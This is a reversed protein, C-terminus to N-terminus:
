FSVKLALQILRPNGVVSSIVGFAPGASHDSVPLGFSPTNTFNFFETRFQVKAREGFNFNRTVGLDLNHQAPGSVIGVGCNGFGTGDGIVPPATFAAPNFFGQLRNQVSGSSAPNAGTCEARNTFVLNGYVSGASSDSVTIPLGSQEVLVGSFQWDSLATRFAAIQWHPRPTQYSFSLVFRNPRDFAAPGYAQHRNTQDGTMFGVDFAPTEQATYDLTRSWTYSGLLSLGNGLRKTVSTQLSNYNSNFTTNCIYGAEGIGEFPLRQSINEVTTTTQGNVPNQPTAILAQNFQTCGTLHATASGVYGTEWLLTPSIEYQVGMSYVQAAPSRLSRGVAAITIASSPTRPIFIPFASDPPLAPVFPQQFTAAANQSAQLAQTVAFPPQGVDQEALDGSLRQYYIGYGGRLVLAPKDSIRYAFGIRPGVDKYDAAWYGANGSRLVGAPISAKLNSSVVFGSFSGSAPVQATAISPDFNSLRGDIESPPGFYEYRLGANVTLRSNVHFSDQFFGALDSYRENKPFIGSAGSSQFVNSVASGNQAASEGLLFDPFSQFLLFGVTVYPVDLALQHRKAEFGVSLDHKGRTVSLTDQWVFTNTNQFYIPEGAGGLMFLSSVDIQPMQPLGSPTAIGAQAATIANGSTLFGHFRMYGFRAVNVVRSSFIHTDSMVLMDNRDTESSGWGPVDSAFPTFPQNTEDRSHFYRAALQNAHSIRQDFNTSFQDERFRAPISYTSEGIGSPLITQPSPIAFTGNPLKFNLITFAVPNINSGDSAVAAGGFEGAQGGFLAGLAARSRDNTLAPLFATALSGTSEGNRQTTGQYALFFYTGTRKIAPGGLTAGFQNQKLVARPQHDQNLFYDNANLDDNRVFDWASGHFDPTGAKSVLDVNAGVSRGYDAGYQATQVKFEEITDPAPVALGVESEFGSASNQAINNADIGNFQFNNQTTNAGDSSIDQNNRGMQAADFLDVQVGPSLALIQTFNRNALPLAVIQQDDVVRGLAADQTQILQPSALVNVATAQTGIALRVNVVATEAVTVAISSFTMRQFGAADVTASCNGPPLLPVSFTGEASSRASRSVNGEDCAISVTADAVVAGSPDFVTGTIAGTGPAQAALSMPVLAACLIPAAAAITKRVAAFIRIRSLKM